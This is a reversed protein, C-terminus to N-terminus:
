YPGMPNNPKGPWKQPFAAATPFYFNTPDHYSACPSTVGDKTFYIVNIASANGLTAASLNM